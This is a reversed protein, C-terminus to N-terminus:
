SYDRAVEQGSCAASRRVGGSSRWGGSSFRRIRWWLVRGAENRAVVAVQYKDPEFYGVDFNVKALLSPPAACHIEMRQHRKFTPMQATRFSKLYHSSWEIINDGVGEGRM